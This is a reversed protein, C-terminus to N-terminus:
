ILEHARSPPPRSLLHFGIDYQHTTFGVEERSPPCALHPGVVDRALLPCHHPAPYARLFPSHSLEVYGQYGSTRRFPSATHQCHTPTTATNQQTTTTATIHTHPRFPPCSPLPPTSERHWVEEDNIGVACCLWETQLKGNSDWGLANQHAAMLLPHLTLKNAACFTTMFAPQLRVLKMM